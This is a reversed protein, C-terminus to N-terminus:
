SVSCRMQFFVNLMVFAILYSLFRSCSWISGGIDKMSLRMLPLQLPPCSKLQNLLWKKTRDATEIMNAGSQTSGDLGAPTMNNHGTNRYM